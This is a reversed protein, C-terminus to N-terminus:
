WFVEVEEIEKVGCDDCFLLCSNTMDYEPVLFTSMLRCSGEDMEEVRRRQQWRRSVYLAAYSIERSASPGFGVQDDIDLFSGVDFLSSGFTHGGSKGGRRASGEKRRSGMADRSVTALTCEYPFM